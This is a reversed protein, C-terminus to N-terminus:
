RVLLPSQNRAPCSPGALRYDPRTLLAAMLLVPIRGTEVGGDTAAQIDKAMQGVADRDGVSAPPVHLALMHGLTDVVLHLKSGQKRKASGYGAHAGSEPTRGCTVFSAPLAAPKTRLANRAGRHHSQLTWIIVGSM